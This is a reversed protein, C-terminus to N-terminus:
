LPHTQRNYPSGPGPQPPPPTQPPWPPPIYPQWPSLPPTSQTSASRHLAPTAPQKSPLPFPRMVDISLSTKAFLGCLLNLGSFRSHTSTEGLLVCLGQCPCT